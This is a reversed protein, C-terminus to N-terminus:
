LAYGVTYRIRYISLLKLTCLVVRLIVGFYSSLRANGVYYTKIGEKAIKDDRENARVLGMLKKPVYKIAEIWFSACGRLNGECRSRRSTRDKRISGTNSIGNSALIADFERGRTEIFSERERDREFFLLM